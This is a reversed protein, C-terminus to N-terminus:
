VSYITPLTLHTYSVAGVVCTLAACTGTYVTLKSDYPAGCVDATIIGDIGTFVYWVGPSTVATGCFPAAVDTTMGVTTGSLVDGCAIPFADDCLDNTPPACAALCSGSGSTAYNSIKTISNPGFGTASCNISGNMINNPAVGADTHRANWNHGIEHASLIATCGLNAPAFDECVNYRFNGCVAGIYACGILSTNTPPVNPDGCGVIDRSTWMQGLDHVGFGGGQAWAMFNPLLIDVNSSATNPTLPDAAANAAVYNDNIVYQIPHFSYFAQMMTTISIVHTMVLGASNHAPNIMDFTSAISFDVELCAMMTLSEPTGPDDKINWDHEDISPARNEAEIAGCSFNGTSIIDESHYM